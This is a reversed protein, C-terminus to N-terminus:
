RENYKKEEKYQLHSLHECRAYERIELQYEDIRNLYYQRDPSGIPL